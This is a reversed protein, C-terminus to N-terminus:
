NCKQTQALFWSAFCIQELFWDINASEDKNKNERLLWSATSNAYIMRVGQNISFRIISIIYIFTISMSVASCTYILLSWWWWVNLKHGTPEDHWLGGAIVRVHVCLIIIISNNLLWGLWKRVRMFNHACYYKIVDCQMAHWETKAQIIWHRGPHLTCQVNAACIVSERERVDCVCVCM